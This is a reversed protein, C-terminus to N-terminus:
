MSDYLARLEAVHEATYDWMDPWWRNSKELNEKKTLLQLNGAVHLGCVVHIDGAKGYLPVAHDVHSEIGQEANALRQRTLERMRAGTEEPLYEKSKAKRARRRARSEARKDPNALQWERDMQAKREANDRSWKKKTAATREPNDMKWQKSRAMHIERNKMYWEHQYIQAATKQEKVM